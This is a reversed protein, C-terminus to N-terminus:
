FRGHRGGGLKQMTDFLSQLQKNSIKVVLRLRDGSKKLKVDELVKKVDSGLFGAADRAQELSEIAKDALQEDKLQASADIELGDALDLTGFVEGVQKAFPTKDLRGAFWLGKTRDAHEMVAALKPDNAANNDKAAASIDAEFDHRKPREFAPKGFGISFRQKTYIAGDDLVLYGLTADLNETSATLTMFKGDPDVSYPLKADKACAELDALKIGTMVYRLDFGDSVDATGLLKDVPKKALCDQWQLTGNDEMGMRAMKALPSSMLQKQLKPLNGGFAVDAGRPLHSLLATETADLKGSAKPGSKECGGSAVVVVLALSTRLMGASYCSQLTV